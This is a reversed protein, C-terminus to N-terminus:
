AQERQLVGLRQDAAEVVIGFARDNGALDGRGRHHLVGVLGRQQGERRLEPHDALREDRPTARDPHRINHVIAHFAQSDTDSTNTATTFAVLATFLLFKAM